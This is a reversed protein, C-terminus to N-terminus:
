PHISFQSLDVTQLYQIWFFNRTGTTYNALPIAINGISIPTLKGDTTTSPNSPNYITNADILLREGAQYAVGFGMDIVTQDLTNPALTFELSVGADNRCIGDQTFDTFREKIADDTQETLSVNFDDTLPEIGSGLVLGKM